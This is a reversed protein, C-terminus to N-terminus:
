AVIPYFSQNDKLTLLQNHEPHDTDLVRSALGDRTWGILLPEDGEGLTMYLGHERRRDKAARSVRLLHPYPGYSEITAAFTKTKDAM